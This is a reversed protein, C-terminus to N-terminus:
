RTTAKLVPWLNGWLLHLSPSLSVRKLDQGQFSGPSILIQFTGLLSSSCAELWARYGKEM